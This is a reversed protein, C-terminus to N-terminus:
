AAQQVKRQQLSTLQGTIKGVASLYSAQLDALRGVSNSVFKTQLDVVDRYDRAAVLGRFTAMGDELQANMTRVWVQGVDEATATATDTAEQLEPGSPLVRTAARTAAATMEKVKGPVAEAPEAAAAVTAQASEAAKEGLEAAVEGGAEALEATTETSATALEAPTDAVVEFQAKLQEILAPGIGSLSRLDELDAVRGHEERYKLVSEAIGPRLGAAVLQEKTAQNVDVKGASAM